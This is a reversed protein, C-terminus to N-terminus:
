EACQCLFLVTASTLLQNEEKHFLRPRLHNRRLDSIFFAKLVAYM